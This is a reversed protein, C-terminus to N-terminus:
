HLGFEPYLLVDAQVIREANRQNCQNADPVMVFQTPTIGASELPM